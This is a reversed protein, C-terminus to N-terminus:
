DISWDNSSYISMWRGSRKRYVYTHDFVETNVYRYCGAEDYSQPSQRVADASGKSTHWNIYGVIVAATAFPRDFVQVTVEARRLRLRLPGNPKGEFIDRKGPNAGSRFDDLMQRWLAKAHNESCFSGRM